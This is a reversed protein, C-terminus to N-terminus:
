RPSLASNLIAAKDGLYIPSPARTADARREEEARARSAEREDKQRKLTAILRLQMDRLADAEQVNPDKVARILALPAVIRDARNWSYWDDGMRFQIARGDASYQPTFIATGNGRTVQVLAGSKLDREFLDGNRVVIARTRERNFLTDASDLKALDADKVQVSGAKGAGVAYIDRLPSGTRKQKYFVQKGDWNWWAAEVPTGIWDPHAMAQDLTVPTSAYAPLALLAALAFATPAPFRTM